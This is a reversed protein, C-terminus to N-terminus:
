PLEVIVAIERLISGLDVPDAPVVSGDRGLHKHHPYTPLAAKKHHGTNDYRFILKLSSDMYQFAYMLREIENEVDVYERWELVTNDVLQVKGRIIGEYTGRKEYSVNSLRVIPSPEITKRVDDFYSEIRM